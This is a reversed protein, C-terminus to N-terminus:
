KYNYTASILRTVDNISYHIQFLQRYLPELIQIYTKNSYMHTHYRYRFQSLLKRNIKATTPALCIWSNRQKYGTFSKTRNFIPQVSTCNHKHM